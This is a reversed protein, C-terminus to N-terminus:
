YWMYTLVVGHFIITCVVTITGTRSVYDYTYSNEGYIHKVRSCVQDVNGISALINICVFLTWIIKLIVIFIDFM